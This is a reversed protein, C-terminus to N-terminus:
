FVGFNVEPSLDLADFKADLEADQSAFGGGFSGEGSEEM